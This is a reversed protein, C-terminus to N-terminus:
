FKDNSNEEVFNELDNWLRYPDHTYEHKKLIEKLKGIYEKLEEPLDNNSMISVWM